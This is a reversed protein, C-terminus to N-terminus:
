ASEKVQQGPRETVSVLFLKKIDLYARHTATWLINVVM